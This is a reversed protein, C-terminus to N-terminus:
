SLSLTSPRFLPSTNQRMMNNECHVWFDYNRGHNRRVLRETSQNLRVEGPGHTVRETRCAVLTSETDFKGGRSVFM